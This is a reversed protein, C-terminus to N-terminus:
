SSTTQPPGCWRCHSITPRRAGIASPEAGVHVAGAEKVLAGSFLVIRRFPHNSERPCPPFIRSRIGCPAPLHFRRMCHLQTDCVNYLHDWALAGRAARPYQKVKGTSERHNRLNTKALAYVSTRYTTSVLRMSLNTDESPKLAAARSALM